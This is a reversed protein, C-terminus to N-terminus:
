DLIGMVSARAKTCVKNTELVHHDDLACFHKHEPITGRYIAVQGYDECLSELQPLKFLRFTISYFKANGVVEKLKEDQIQIPRMTLVRPDSFGM